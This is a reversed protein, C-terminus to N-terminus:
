EAKQRRSEAKQKRGEAKQRRGEAKQRRGEAKQRRGEAKQRRGEAKERKSEAKQRRGEAKQRRGVARERGTGLHVQSATASLARSAQGRVDVLRSPGPRDDWIRNLDVAERSRGPTARTHDEFDM